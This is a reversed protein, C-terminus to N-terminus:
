DDAEYFDITTPFLFLFLHPFTKLKLFKPLGPYGTINLPGNRSFTFANSSHAFKSYNLCPFALTTKEVHLEDGGVKVYRTTQSQLALLPLM